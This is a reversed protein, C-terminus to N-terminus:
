KSICSAAVLFSCHFFYQDLSVFKYNFVFVLTGTQRRFFSLEGGVGLSVVVDRNPNSHKNRILIFAECAPHKSQITKYSPRQDM